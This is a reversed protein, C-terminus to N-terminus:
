KEIGCNADPANIGEISPRNRLWEPVGIRGSRGYTLALAQEYEARTREHIFARDPLVGHPRFADIAISISHSARMPLLHLDLRTVM